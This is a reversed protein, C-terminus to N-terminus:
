GLLKILSFMMTPFFLHGVQGATDNGGKLQGDGHPMDDISLSSGEERYCGYGQCYGDREDGYEHHVAKPIHEEIHDDLVKRM